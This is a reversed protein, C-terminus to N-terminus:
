LKRMWCASHWHRREDLADASLLAKETPWVVVHPTGPHIPQHCDPCTYSKTSTAGTIRRVFWSGDSKSEIPPAEVLPVIPRKLRRRAM